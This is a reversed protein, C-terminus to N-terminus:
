TSDQSEFTSTSEDDETPLDDLAALQVAPLLSAVLLAIIAYCGAYVFLSAWMHLDLLWAGLPGKILGGVSGSVRIMACATSRCQAPYSQPTVLYLTAWSSVSFFYMSASAFTVASEGNVASCCALTIGCGLSCWMLLIKRSLGVGVLTAALLLGPIEALVMVMYSRYVHLGSIGKSEMYYPFWLTFGGYAVNMLLWTTSLLLTTCRLSANLIPEFLMLCSATKDTHTKLDRGHGDDDTDETSEARLTLGSPIDAGNKEAILQIVQWAESVRGHVYLHVPSEPIGLRVVLLLLSPISLVSVYIRWGSEMLFWAAVAVLLVGLVGWMTMLMMACDRNKSPVFELFMAYDVALNGGLGCGVGFRLLVFVWFAPACASALGCGFTLSVSALFALRRGVCDSLVGFVLAGCMIGLNSFLSAMSLTMKDLDWTKGLEPLTFGLLMMEVMDAAYGLGCAVFLLSHFRGWPVLNLAETIGISRELIEEGSNSMSSM